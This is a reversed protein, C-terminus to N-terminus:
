ELKLDSSKDFEKQSKELHPSSSKLNPQPLSFVNNKAPITRRMKGDQKLSFKRKNFNFTTFIRDEKEISNM